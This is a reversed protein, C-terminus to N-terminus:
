FNKLKKKGNEDDSHISFYLQSHSVHGFHVFGFSNWGYDGFLFLPLDFILRKSIVLGL